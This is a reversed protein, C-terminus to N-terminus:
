GYIRLNKAGKDIASIISPDVYHNALVTGTSHSTLLGTEIGMVQNLWSIYTKRLSKLTIDTTIGAQKSYHSFGKSLCDMITQSTETRSPHLIYSYSNMNENYAMEFLLNWLDATIPVYKFVDNGKQIREVKLNHIKFCKTGAMTVVIDSFKLEVIEERRLGTLLCLKFGDKLYPKYHSKTEGKGGLKQYPSATDVATLISDFQEKSISLPNKKIITKTNYQEFVNKINLEENEITFTFFSKVALMVKNFTKNAYKTEILQYFNSLDYKTVEIIAKTTDNLSELFLNCYRICENAHNKSVSKKLHALQHKGLLYDSYNNIANTILISNTKPEIITAETFTPKVTPEIMNPHIVNLVKAKPETQYNNAVLYAKFEIAAQVAQFYSKTEFEKVKVSNKTNPIHIRVRYFHNDFHNCTPNDKKCKNCYIKLGKYSNEPLKLKSM